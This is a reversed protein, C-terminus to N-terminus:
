KTNTKVRGYVKQSQTGTNQTKYNYTLSESLLKSGNMRGTLTFANKSKTLTLNEGILKVKGTKTIHSPKFNFSTKLTKGSNFTILGEVMLAKDNCRCESLKFSKVNDYVRKLYSEGLGGLEEEDVEDIDIDVSDDSNEAAIEAADEDTLPVITEEAPEDEKPESSVKIKETATELEVKDFSEDVKSKSASKMGTLWTAMTSLLASISKKSDMSANFRKAADSDALDSNNVIEKLKAKLSAVDTAAANIEEMHKTLLNSITGSAKTLDKEEKLPKDSIYECEVYNGDASLEKMKYEYVKDANDDVFKVKIYKGPEFNVIDKTIAIDGSGEHFVYESDELTLTGDLKETLSEGVKNGYLHIPTPIGVLAGGGQYIDKYGKEALAKTAAKEFLKEIRDQEGKALDLEALEDKRFLPEVPDGPKTQIGPGVEYKATFSPYTIEIESTGTLNKRRFHTSSGLFTHPYEDGEDAETLNKDCEALYLRGHVFSYKKLNGDGKLDLLMSGDEEDEGGFAYLKEGAQDALYAAYAALDTDDDNVEGYGYREEDEAKWTITPNGRVIKDVSEELRLRNRIFSYRRLKGNGKIDLLVTNDDDDEGGFAYLKEGAKNVLYAYYAALDTPVENIDGDEYREEDEAKWTIVPDGHIIEEKLDNKKLQYDRDSDADDKLRAFRARAREKKDDAIADVDDRSRPVVHRAESLKAVRKKDCSEEVEDKGEEEVEDDVKLEVDAYPAVECLINFGGVSHCYPCEEDINALASDEDFTIQDKGHYILTRCCPCEFIVKGLYSDQLADEDKAEPDIVNQQTDLEDGALFSDLDDLGKPTGEFNEEHLLQLEKFAETLIDAM